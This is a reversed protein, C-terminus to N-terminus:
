DEMIRFNIEVDPLAMADDELPPLMLAMAVIAATHKCKERVKLPLTPLHAPIVHQTLTARLEALDEDVSMIGNIAPWLYRVQKPQTCAGNLFKFVSLVEEWDIVVDIYQKAASVLAEVLAKNEGYQSLWMCNRPVVPSEENGSVEFTVAINRGRHFAIVRADMKDGSYRDIDVIQRANLLFEIHEEPAILRLMERYTITPTKLTRLVRTQLSNIANAIKTEIKPHFATKDKAM